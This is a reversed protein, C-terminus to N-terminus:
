VFYIRTYLRKSKCSSTNRQLHLSISGTFVPNWNMTKLSDSGNGRKPDIRKNLPTFLLSQFVLCLNKFDRGAGHNGCATRNNVGATWGWLGAWWPQRWQAMAQSAGCPAESGPWQESTGDEPVGSSPGHIVHPQHWLSPLSMGQGM